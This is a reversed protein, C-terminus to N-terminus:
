TVRQQIVSLICGVIWVVLVILLAQRVSTWPSHGTAPLTTVGALFDQQQALREAASLPQGGEGNTGIADVASLTNGDDNDDDDSNNNGFIVDAFSQRAAAALYNGGLDRASFNSVIGTNTVTNGPQTILELDYTVVVINAGTTANYPTCVGTTANFDDLEIGSDFLDEVGDGLNTYTLTTGDGLRAQLNSGGAPIAFGPPIVDNLVIDFVGFEANGVSEVVFAFTLTDGVLVDDVDSDIPLSDLGNSNILGTFSPNSGPPNFTVPGVAAPSFTAAPNSSSVVGKSTRIAPAQLPMAAMARTLNTGDNTTEEEIEIINGLLQDPPFPANLVTVTFLIDIEVSTNTNDTNSGYDFIVTNNVITAETVIAPAGINGSTTDNVGYKATGAPPTTASAASTDFITVERADYIPQPLYDVLQLDEFDRTPVTQQIRYTIEDLPFIRETSCNGVGCLTGNLAYLSKTPSASVINFEVSTDNSEIETASPTLDSPALLVGEIEAENTLLDGHDLNTNNGSTNTFAEDITAQYTLTGETSNTAGCDLSAAGAGGTPICGGLLNGGDTHGALAGSIDFVLTTSGDGNATETPVIPSINTTVGLRDFTLSASGNVFSQGDSLVDTIVVTGFAFSDAIQYGMTYTLVDQPSEGAFNNDTTLAYVKQVAISAIYPANNGPCTVCTGDAIANDAIAADRPDAPSWDGVADTTNSTFFGDGSTGDLTESSSADTFPVIYEFTIVVDDSNETGTTSAITVILDDGAAAPANDTFAIAAGGSDVVSIIGVFQLNDPMFDSIDLNTITQGDAIDVTIDFTYDYSSGGPIENEPANTEKAITMIEPTTPDGAWASVLFPDCCPNDLADSGRAFGGRAQINLPSSLDAFDSVFATITVDVPPQDPSMSALPLQLVLLSNEASDCVQVANLATDELLPHDVCGGAPFTLEVVTVVEGFYTASLFSIGDVTGGGSTSDIGARPLIVDIFPQYGTDAPDINDLTVTFTFTEGIFVEDPVDLSLSPIPIAYVPSLVFALLGIVILVHARVHRM